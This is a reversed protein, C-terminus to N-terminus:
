PLTWRHRVVVPAYIDDDDDDDDMRAATLAISLDPKPEREIWDAVAM